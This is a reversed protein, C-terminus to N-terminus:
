MVKVLGAEGEGELRYILNCILRNKILQGNQHTTPYNGNNKQIDREFTVKNSFMKM